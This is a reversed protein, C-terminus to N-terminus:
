SSKNRKECWELDEKLRDSIVRFYDKAVCTDADLFSIHTFRSLLYLERIVNNLSEAKGLNRPNHLANVGYRAIEEVTNDTSCDNIVFINQPLRGAALLSEITQGIVAQENYAPVVVAINIFSM